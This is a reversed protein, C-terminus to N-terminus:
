IHILSLHLTHTVMDGGQNVEVVIAAARYKYYLALAARAWTDPSGRVSGDELVYGHAPSGATGAAVIGSEGGAASAAPDIAVVVRDLPPPAIVRALEIWAARFLGGDRAIPTQQYLASFAYAGMAARREDLVEVPYRAAWLAEGPARGLPDAAEALAPLRLVYWRDGERALLRGALDDTHWRTMILAVAGGPEVRTLLDDTYAEWIHQRSAASEAQQRNKVPDDIILLHAGKGTVAGGIGMADMGGEHGDIDWSARAASDHAIRVHPFIRAFVASRVANRVARSHKEVLSAGYGTLIVRADPARGLFWAPFLRAVTQSKGHRPPIFIALRAIGDSGGTEVHHMIRMLAADILALHPAHDYGRWLARKFSTFDDREISASKFVHESM